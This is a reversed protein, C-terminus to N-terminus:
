VFKFSYKNGDNKSTATKHHKVKRCISSISSADINLEIASTKVSVFLKEKSTQLNISIISKDNSKQNNEKQTLLQLNKLRDDTKCNNCITWWWGREYQEKLVKMFLDTSITNKLSILNKIEIQFNIIVVEM